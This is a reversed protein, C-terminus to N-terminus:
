VVRLGKLYWSCWRVELVTFAWGVFMFTSNVFIFFYFVFEVMVGGGVLWM